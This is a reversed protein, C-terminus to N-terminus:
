HAAVFKHAYVTVCDFHQERVNKLSTKVENLTLGLQTM